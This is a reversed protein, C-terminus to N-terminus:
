EEETAQIPCQGCVLNVGGGVSNLSSEAFFHADIETLLREKSIISTSILSKLPRQRQPFSAKFHKRQTTEVEYREVNEITLM